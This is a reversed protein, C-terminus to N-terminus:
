SFVLLLWKCEKCFMEVDMPTILQSDDLALGMYQRIELPDVSLVLKEKTGTIDLLQDIDSGKVCLGSTSGLSLGHCKAIQGITNIIMM